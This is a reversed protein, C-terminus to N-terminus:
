FQLQTKTPTAGNGEFQVYVVCTTALRPIGNLRIAISAVGLNGFWSRALQCDSTFKLGLPCIALLTCKWTFQARILVIGWILKILKNRNGQCHPASLTAVIALQCHHNWDNLPSYSRAVTMNFTAARLTFLSSKNADLSPHHKAWKAQERERWIRASPTPPPLRRVSPPFLTKMERIM